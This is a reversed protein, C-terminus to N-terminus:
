LEIKGSKQMHAVNKQTKTVCFNYKKHHTVLNAVFIYGYKHHRWL